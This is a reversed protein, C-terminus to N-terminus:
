EEASVRGWTGRTFDLTAVWTMYAKSVVAEGVLGYGREARSQEQRLSGM